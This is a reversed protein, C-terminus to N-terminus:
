TGSFVAYCGVLDFVEFSVNKEAVFENFGAICNVTPTL